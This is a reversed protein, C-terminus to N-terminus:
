AQMAIHVQKPSHIELVQFFPFEFLGITNVSGMLEPIVKLLYMGPPLIAEKLITTYALKNKILPEPKTDGLNLQKGTSRSYAYCRVKFRTGKIHIDSSPTSSLEISIEINFAENGIIFGNFLKGKEVIGLPVLTNPPQYVSLKTVDLNIQQAEQLTTEAYRAIVHNEKDFKSIVQARMWDYFHEGQRDDTFEVPEKQPDEELWTGNEAVPIHKAMVREEIKEEEVKRIQLQVFFAGISNWNPLASSYESIAAPQIEKPDKVQLSTLDATALKRADAIWQEVDDRSPLPKRQDKKFQSIIKESSLSALQGYTEINLSERLWQQRTTKIGKIVTLDDFKKNTDLPNEIRSTEDM